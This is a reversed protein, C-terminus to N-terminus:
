QEDEGTNTGIQGTRQRRLKGKEGRARVEETDTGTVRTQLAPRRVGTEPRAPVPGTIECGYRAATAVLREVESRAADTERYFGELGAPAVLALVRARETAVVFTHEVGRPLFVAAGAPVEVWRSAIWVDLSGELVYLAEDERHHIHRPAEAGPEEVTEILAFRDGTEEGAVLVAVRTEHAERVPPSPGTKLGYEDV